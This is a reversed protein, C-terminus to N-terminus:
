TDDYDDVDGNGDDYNDDGGNDGDVVDANSDWNILTRTHLKTPTMIMILRMRMVMMVVRSMMIAKATIIRTITM